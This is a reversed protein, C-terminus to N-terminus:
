VGVAVSLLSKQRARPLNRISRILSESFHVNADLRRLATAIEESNPELNGGSVKAARLVVEALLEWSRKIAGRPDTAALDM